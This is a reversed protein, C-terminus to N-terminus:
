AKHLSDFSHYVRRLLRNEIQCDVRVTEILAAIFQAITGNVPTNRRTLYSTANHPLPEELAVGEVRYRDRVAELLPSPMLCLM